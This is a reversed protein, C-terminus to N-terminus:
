QRQTAETLCNKAEEEAIEKDFGSFDMIENTLAAYEGSLLMKAPVLLPDVVGYNDCMEKSTFDPFVTAAVVLRRGYEMYDTEESRVGGKIKKRSKRVLKENEDQTIARIKFPVINGNEDQFRDSIYVEKEEGTKTPHLFAYLDSM